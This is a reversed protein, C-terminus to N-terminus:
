QFVGCALRAGGGGLPKPDDSYTDGGAHLIIARGKLQALDTLHPAVLTAKVAGDPGVEARPLDGQHGAGLPGAHRGSATPDFHGGAAGGLVPAGDKVSAECSGVQHLHLGHPGPPLGKLDLRLVVGGPGSSAEIAGARAGGDLITMPAVLTQAAVVGGSALAVLTAAVLSSRLMFIEVTPMM